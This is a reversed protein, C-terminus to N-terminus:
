KCSGLLILWRGLGSGAALSCHVHISNKNPKTKKPSQLVNRNKKQIHRRSAFVHINNKIEWGTINDRPVDGGEEFPKDAYYQNNNNKLNILWVM